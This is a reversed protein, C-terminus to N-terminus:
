FAAMPRTNVQVSNGAPDKANSYAYGGGDHPPGFKVGAANAKACFAAVDDVRFTLKTQAQGQKASKSAPHLLLHAGDGDPILEVIRDGDRRYARYGFLTGYFAEVADTDKVYLVLHSLGPVSKDACFRAARM